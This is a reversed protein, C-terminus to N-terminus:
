EMYYIDFVAQYRYQKTATDTFNYDTQLKVASINEESVSDLMIAKVAENLQAAEYLSPAYSQVAMTAQDLHNTRSASTKEILIYMGNPRQEPREMFCPIEPLSLQLFDLVTKEIM